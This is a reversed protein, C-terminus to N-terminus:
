PLHASLDCLIQQNKFPMKDPFIRRYITITKEPERLDLYAKGVEAEAYTPVSVKDALLSEYM